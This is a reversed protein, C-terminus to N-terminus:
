EVEKRLAYINEVIFRHKEILFEIKRNWTRTYLKFARDRALSLGIDADFEDEPSCKAKGGFKDPFYLWKYPISYGFSRLRKHIKTMFYQHCDELVVVCTRKEENVFERIKM